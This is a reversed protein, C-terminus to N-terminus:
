FLVQDEINTIKDILELAQNAQAIAAYTESWFYAPTDQSSSGSSKVVEFRFNEIMWNLDEFSNGKPKRVNDSLWEIFDYSGASYALVLLEKADEITEIEQRNDPVEDLFNDCGTLIFFM